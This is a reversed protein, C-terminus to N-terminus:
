SSRMEEPFKDGILNLRIGHELYAKLGALVMTFGGTSDRIAAILQDGEEEFGTHEVIVYTANPGKNLFVMEVVTWENDDGWEFIIKEDPIIEKTVVKASVNYMEWEWIVEKNVELKGSGKTFWFNTTISPDIFANFVESINRRIMMQAGAHAKSKM